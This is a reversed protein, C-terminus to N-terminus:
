PLSRPLVQEDDIADLIDAPAGELAERPIPGIVEVGAIAIGRSRAERRVAAYAEAPSTSRYDILNMSVQTLSRSPLEFGLARVDPLGGASQRIARAIERAPGPDRTALNVNFRVLPSRVGTIVAGATPHVEAPGEDPHWAPDEIRAPLGEFGDGRVAPLARRGPATASREYYYVPIGLGGVWEGFARCAALAEPGPLGGLAVFPVVDVAGLRPHRGRHERLDIRAFAERALRRSAEVVAGPEGLYALVMRHHDPDASRHILRVGPTGEVAGALADMRDPDRGESVNPECLLVASM